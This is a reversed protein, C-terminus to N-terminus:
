RSAVSAIHFVAEEGLMVGTPEFYIQRLGSLPTELSQVGSLTESM